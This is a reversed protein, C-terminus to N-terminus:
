RNIEKGNLDLVGAGTGGLTVSAGRTVAGTAAIWVLRTEGAALPVHVAVTRAGARVGIDYVGPAMAPDCWVYQRAPLTVWSRTDARRVASLVANGALVALKAAASGSANVAAQAGAQVAARTLNRVVVGPLKEKLDRAALARVDVAVGAPTEGKSGSVFVAHPRAAPAGYRPIDIAMGTYVPVPIKLSERQPVFDQEYLVILKARDSTPTVHRDARAADAAFVPCDPQIAAAKRYSQGAAAADGDAEFLVGTLWWLLPNEWSNRTAAILADLAASQEGVITRAEPTMREPSRALDAGLTEALTDQVYVALRADVLASEREGSLVHALLSYALALNIEYPPLSYERTRDDTVTSAMATNMLDGMKLKPAAETRDVASDVAARFRRRAEQHRGCLMAVRGAEVAGLHRSYVSEDALAGSWAQALADEGSGLAACARRADTDVSVCGAFLLIGAAACVTLVRRMM